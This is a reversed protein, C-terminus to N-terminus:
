EPQIKVERAMKVWRTTESEILRTVEDPPLFWPVFGLQEMRAAVDGIRLVVSFATSIRDVVERPMGRPGVVAAWTSFDFEPLTESIAPWDPTLPNRKLSSVGLARMHGSNVNVLANAPDLLTADLTGGLVDTITAPTGRYPVPLLQIGTMRNLMAIQVQVLATSYGVSLGGQRQRAYALFEAFSHTPFDSRVVLVHNTTYTGSVAQLDRRPDYPLNRVFAVNVALPSLSGLFLTTGDPPARLMDQMGIVSDAGVKNDIIVAKGLEISLYPAIIRAVVDIASGPPLTVILRLPRGAQAQASARRIPSVSALGLGILVARRDMEGM